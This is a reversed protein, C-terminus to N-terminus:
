ERTAPITRDMVPGRFDDHEPGLPLDVWGRRENSLYAALSWELDAMADEGSLPVDRDHEIADRFQRHLRMFADEAALEGDVEVAESAHGARALTIRKSWPGPVEVIGEGGRITYGDTSATTGALSSYMSICIIAGRDCTSTICFQDEYVMGASFLNGIHASVSVPDQGTLFRATDIYHCGFNIVHGNGAAGARYRWSDTAGRSPPEAVTSFQASLAFPEGIAGREIVRRAMLCSPQFRTSQGVTLKVGHQRAAAMIERCQGLTAAMAKECYIHKGAAAAALAVECHLHTPVAIVVVHVAEDALAERYDRYAAPRPDHTSAIEKARDHNSDVVAALRCGPLAAAVDRHRKSVRGCGIVAYGLEDM